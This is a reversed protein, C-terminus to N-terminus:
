SRLMRTNAPFIAYYDIHEFKSNKTGNNTEEKWIRLAEEKTVPESVDVWLQDFGDYLRVIFKEDLLNCDPFLLKIAAETKM